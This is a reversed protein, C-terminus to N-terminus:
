EANIKLDKRLIQFFVSFEILSIDWFVGSTTEERLRFFFVFIGRFSYTFLQSRKLSM